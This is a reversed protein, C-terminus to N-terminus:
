YSRLLRIYEEEEKFVDLLSEFYEWICDKNEDSISESSIMNKFKFMSDAFQTPLNNFIDEFNDVFFKANRTEIAEQIEQKLMNSKLKRYVRCVNEAKDKKLKKINEWNPILGIDDNEIFMEDTYFTQLVTRCLELNSASPLTEKDANDLQELIASTTECLDTLNKCTLLSLFLEEKEYLVPSNDFSNFLQTTVSDIICDM